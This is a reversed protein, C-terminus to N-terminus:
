GGSVPPLLAVEDGEQLEVEEGAYEQNVAIAMSKWAGEPMRGHFVQRLGGVTCRDGVELEEAPCCFVDRLVGFYLVKVQMPM